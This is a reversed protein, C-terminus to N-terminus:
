SLQSFLPSHKSCFPRGDAKTARPTQQGEMSKEWIGCTHQVGRHSQLIQTRSQHLEILGVQRDAIEVGVAEM